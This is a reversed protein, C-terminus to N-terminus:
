RRKRGRVKRKKAKTRWSKLLQGHATRVNGTITTIMKKPVASDTTAFESRLRYYFIVSYAVLFLLLVVLTSLPTWRDEENMVFQASLAIVIELFGALIVWVKAIEDARSKGTERPLEVAKSEEEPREITKREPEDFSRDSSWLRRIGRVVEVLSMEKWWVAGFSAAAGTVLIIWPNTAFGLAKMGLTMFLKPLDHGFTALLALAFIYYYKEVARRGTLAIAKTSTPFREEWGEEGKLRDMGTTLTRLAENIGKRVKVYEESELTKGKMLYIKANDPLTKLQKALDKQFTEMLVNIADRKEEFPRYMDGLLFLMPRLAGDVATSDLATVKKMDDLLGVMGIFYQGLAKAVKEGDKGVEKEVQQLFDHFKKKNDETLTSGTPQDTADIADPNAQPNNTAYLDELKLPPATTM